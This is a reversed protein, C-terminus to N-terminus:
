RNGRGNNHIRSFCTTHVIQDLSLVDRCRRVLSSFIGRFYKRILAFNRSLVMFPLCNNQEFFTSTITHCLTNALSIYLHVFSSNTSSRIFSENILQSSLSYILSHVTCLVQIYVYLYIYRIRYFGVCLSCWCFLSSELFSFAFKDYHALKTTAFRTFRTQRVVAGDGFFVQYNHLQIILPFLIASSYKCIVTLKANARIASNLKAPGVQCQYEADDELSANSVRLNHVGQSRDGLVSYRPFGPIIGVFGAVHFSFSSHSFFFSFSFLTM